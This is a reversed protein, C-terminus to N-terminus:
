KEQFQYKVFEQSLDSSIRRSSGNLDLFPTIFEFPIPKSLRYDGFYPPIYVFRFDVNPDLGEKHIKKSLFGIGSLWKANPNTAGTPSIFLNKGRLLADFMLTILEGGNNGFRKNEGTINAIFPWIGLRIYESRGCWYRNTNHSTNVSIVEIHFLKALRVFAADAVVVLNGETKKNLDRVVSQMRPFFRHESIFVTSKGIREDNLSM